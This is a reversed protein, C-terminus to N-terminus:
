QVHNPAAILHFASIQPPVPATLTFGFLTEPYQLAPLEAWSGANAVGDGGVGGSVVKGVQLKAMPNREGVFSARILSVHM